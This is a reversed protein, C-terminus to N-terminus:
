RKIFQRQDQFAGNDIRLFYSGDALDSVDLKMEQDGTEWPVFVEMKVVQGNESIVSLNITDLSSAFFGLKLKKGVPNPYLTLNFVNKGNLTTEELGVSNKNIYVEFITASAFSQAGDNVFFVNEGTSQIGGYIYGILTQQNPIASLNVVDNNYLWQQLPIFEAGAGLLSPMEIYDLKTETM